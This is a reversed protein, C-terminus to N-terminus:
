LDSPTRRRCWRRLLVSGSSLSYLASLLGFGLCFANVLVLALLSAGVGSSPGADAYARDRATTTLWTDQGPVFRAEEARGEECAGSLYLDVDTRAPGNGAPRFVGVCRRENSGFGTSVSGTVELTGEQGAWGYAAGVSRLEHGSFQVAVQLLFYAALAGGLLVGLAMGTSPNAGAGPWPRKGGM